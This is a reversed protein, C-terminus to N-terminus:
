YWHSKKEKKKKQKGNKTTPPSKAFGKVAMMNAIEEDEELYRCILVYTIGARFLVLSRVARVNICCM